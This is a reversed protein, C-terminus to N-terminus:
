NDWYQSADRWRPYNEEDDLWAEAANMAASICMDRNDSFPGESISGAPDDTTEPLTTHVVEGVANDKVTGCYTTIGDAEVETWSVSYRSHVRTYSPARSASPMKLTARVYGNSDVLHMTSLDDAPVKTWGDPLRVPVFLDRVNAEVGFIVGAHVLASRDRPKMLRPFMDNMIAAQERVVRLAARAERPYLFSPM